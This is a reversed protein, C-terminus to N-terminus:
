LRWEKRNSPPAPRGLRGWQRCRGLAWRSPLARDRFGCSATLWSTQTMTRDRLRGRQTSATPRPTRQARLISAPSPATRPACSVTLWSTQTLTVERSRERRTSAALSPVRPARHISRPSLATRPGCSATLWSAQSMTRDRLRGRQTSATPPLHRILGASRFTTITGDRARVFGHAVFNADFYSGTITGAPNIGGAFTGNADDPADFTTITSDPARVFGHAVFNADFYSGTITGAPNIASAFTLNSGPPDFTTFTPQPHLLPTKSFNLVGDNMGANNATPSFALCVLAILFFGYRLPSRGISNGIPLTTM